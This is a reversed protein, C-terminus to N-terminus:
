ILISGKYRMRRKVVMAVHSSSRTSYNNCLHWPVRRTGKPEETVIDKHSSLVATKYWCGSDVHMNCIKCIRDETLLMPLNTQWLHMIVKPLSRTGIAVLSLQYNDM